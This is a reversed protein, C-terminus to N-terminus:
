SRRRRAGCTLITGTLFVALSQPEPVAVTRLTSTFRTRDFRQNGQKPDVVFDITTGISVDAVLSFRKGVFDGAAIDVTFVEEQAVFVRGIVGNDLTGFDDDAIMGSVSILGEVDSVWRRVSWQEVKARDRNVLDGNGHTTTPTIYTWYLPPPEFYDVVWGQWNAVYTPMLRFDSPTFSDQFYGYYWGNGGQMSSFDAVSDGVIM